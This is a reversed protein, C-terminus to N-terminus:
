KIDKIPRNFIEWDGFRGKKAAPMQYGRAWVQGDKEFLSTVALSPDDVQCFSKEGRGPITFVPALLDEAARTIAPGDFGGAPILYYELKQRGHLRLDYQGNNTWGYHLRNSFRRGGWALTNAMVGGRVWHKVTGHNVYVLGGCYLWSTAFIQEQERAPLYGFPVDHYIGAQALPYYVNLKSEELHMDGIEDGDFDFELEAKIVPQHTFFFYCERFPIGGPRVTQPPSGSSLRAAHGHGSADPAQNGSAQDLPWWALLGKPSPASGSALAAIETQGLAAPYLRVDQLAGHFFRSHGEWAGLCFKDLIVPVAAGLTAKTDQKGDIYIYLRKGPADYVLAVHTWQGQRQGPASVSFVGTPEAGKVAAQVRGDGTLLFHLGSVNWGDTHLLAEQPSDLAEPKIWMAVTLKEQQGLGGAVLHSEGQLALAGGRREDLIWRAAPTAASPPAAAGFRGSRELISCVPGDHFVCTAPRNNVWRDGIVARLEGGLYKGPALLNRGKATAIQQLLGEKSFTIQYHDTALKEPLAAPTSDSYGDPALAFSKFGGAPLPRFGLYRQGFKQLKTEGGPFQGGNLDLLAQRPHPLGNFVALSQEDRAALQAAVEGMLRRSGAAAQELQKVATRRLDTVEIWAVDHHQYKLITQWIKRLEAQRSETVGALQAFGLLNGALVAAQVAQHNARLLEEAWVGEAYSEYSAVRGKARPPAVKLRADLAQELLATRAWKELPNHFEEMDPFTIWVPPCSWLDKMYEENPGNPGVETACYAPLGRGDLGTVQIFEDGKKLYYRGSGLLEFPGETITMRWPFVPMVLYKYGFQCLIQPLQPHLHTEQSAHVVVQRGLLRQYVELGYEYQRWASESDLTVAHPQSYNGNLFDLQGRQYAARMRQLVEPFRQALAELEVASWEYNLKQRPDKELASLNRKVREVYDAATAAGWPPVREGVIPVGRDEDVLLYMPHYCIAIQWDFHRKVDFTEEAGFLRPLTTAILAAAALLKFPATKM